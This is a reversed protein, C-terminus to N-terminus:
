NPPARDGRKVSDVRCPVDQRTRSRMFDVNSHVILARTMASTAIEMTVANPQRQDMHVSIFCIELLMSTCFISVCECQAFTRRSPTWSLSFLSLFLYVNARQIAVTGSSLPGRESPILVVLFFLHSRGMGMGQHCHQTPRRQICFLLSQLHNPNSVDINCVSVGSVEGM